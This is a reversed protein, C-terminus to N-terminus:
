VYRALKPGYEKLAWILAILLLLEGGKSALQLRNSWKFLGMFGDRLDTKDPITEDVAKVGNRAAARINGLAREVRQKAAGKVQGLKAAAEDALDRLRKLQKDLWSEEQGPEPPHDLDDPGDGELGAPTLAVEAARRPEIQAFWDVM